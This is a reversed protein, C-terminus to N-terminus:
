TKLKVSTFDSTDFIAPVNESHYFLRWGGEDICWRL